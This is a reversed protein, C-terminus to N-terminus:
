EVEKHNKKQRVVYQYVKWLIGTPAESLNFGYKMLCYTEIREKPVSRDKAIGFIRSLLYKREINIEVTKKVLKNLLSTEWNRLFKLASNFKNKPLAKYENINYKDNFKKWITAYASKVNGPRFTIGMPSAIRLERAQLELAVIRNIFERIQKLQSPSLETPVTHKVKSGALHLHVQDIANGFVSIINKGQGQAVVKLFNEEVLKAIDEDQSLDPDGLMEALMKLKKLKNKDM